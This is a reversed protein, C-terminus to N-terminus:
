GGNRGMPHCEVCNRPAAHAKLEVHCVLCLNRTFPLADIRATEHCTDCGTHSARDHAGRAPAHCLSCNSDARHTTHCGACATGSSLRVSGPTAHCELCELAQGASRVAEAHAGHRFSTAPSVPPAWRVRSLLTGDHCNACLATGPYLAANNDTAAGAHCGACLPFLRDHAPHPFSDQGRAPCAAAATLLASVALVRTFSRFLMAAFM